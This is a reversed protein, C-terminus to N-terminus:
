RQPDFFPKDRKVQTRHMLLRSNPDFANRGHMASIDIRTQQL